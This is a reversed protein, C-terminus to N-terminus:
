TNTRAAYQPYQAALETAVKFGKETLRCETFMPYAALRNTDGLNGRGTFLAESAPQHKAMQILTDYWLEWEPSVQVQDNCMWLERLNDDWIGKWMLAQRLVIICKCANDQNPVLNYQLAALVLLRQVENLDQASSNSM